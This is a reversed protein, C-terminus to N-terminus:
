SLLDRVKLRGLERGALVVPIEDDPSYVKSVQYVASRGRGSPETYVEIQRMPLNVIWYVPIKSAAYKRWKKGHDKAYSTDDVEILSALDAADPSVSRYRERLARAIAIDPEPRSFRGLAVPKEERVIWDPGVIARFADALEGVTFNHPDNKTMKDVLIGELLEVHDNEGFVGADIMKGFQRVSIRYPIMGSANAQRANPPAATPIVSPNSM